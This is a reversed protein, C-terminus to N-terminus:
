YLIHTADLPVVWEGLENIITLNILSATGGAFSM